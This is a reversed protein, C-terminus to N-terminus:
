LAEQRRPRGRGRRATEPVRARRRYRISTYVPIRELVGAVAMAECCAQLVEAAPRPRVNRAIERLDYSAGTRLVHLIAGELVPDDVRVPSHTTDRPPDPPASARSPAAPPPPTAPTGDALAFRSWRGRSHQQLLGENVLAGVLPRLTNDSVGIRLALATLPAPGLVQLSELVRRRLEARDIRPMASM